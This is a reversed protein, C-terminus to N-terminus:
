YLASVCPKGDGKCDRMPKKSADLWYAHSKDFRLYGGDFPMIPQYKGKYDTSCATIGCSWIKVNGDQSIKISMGTGTGGMFNFDKQGVFPYVPATNSPTTVSPQQTVNTQASQANQTNAVTNNQPSNQEPNTNTANWFKQAVSGDCGM